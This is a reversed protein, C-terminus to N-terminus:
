LFFNCFQHFTPILKVFDLDPQSGPFRVREWVTAARSNPSRQVKRRRKRAEAQQAETLKPKRGMRQGRKQARSRGEATRTRILDREVDALGGLVAIMLRGTSTGADAWPEALSRFQAKADVIQKVIAFLDFTSRALRDVRTVTVVDGPALHKLMKLLERRDNHAGTVKERYIKSCGLGRLQELQSDLTQGVTSVRAYGIRRNQPHTGTM